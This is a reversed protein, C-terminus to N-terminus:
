KPMSWASITPCRSAGISIPIHNENQWDIMPPPAFNLRQRVIRAPAGVAVSYPPLDRTVVANAGIVCGRGVTIGPMVVANMGLWCDEGLVIARSHGKSAEVDNAVRLDQDRILLHPWRDFYHRGSTLLVNLSLVCNNGLTVDGVIISRHQIWVRDGIAVRGGTGIEVYRGVYCDDGINLSAGTPVIVNCGENFSVNEGYVFAGNIKLNSDPELSLDPYRWYNRLHLLAPSRNVMM